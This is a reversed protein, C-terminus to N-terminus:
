KYTTNKRQKGYYCIPYTGRRAAIARRPKKRTNAYQMKGKTHGINSFHYLFANKQVLFKCMDFFLLVKAADFLFFLLYSFVFVNHFRVENVFNLIVINVDHSFTDVVELHFCYLVAVFVKATHCLNVHM